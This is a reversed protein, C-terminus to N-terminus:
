QRRMDLQGLYSILQYVSDYNGIVAEWHEAGRDYDSVISEFKAPDIAQMLYNILDKQEYTVGANTALQLRNKWEQAFDVWRSFDGRQKFNEFTRKALHQKRWEDDSQGNAIDMTIDKVVHPHNQMGLDEKWLKHQRVHAQMDASMRSFMFLMIKTRKQPLELIRATEKEIKKELAKNALKTTNNHTQILMLNRALFRTKRTKIRTKMATREVRSTMANMKLRMADLRAKQTTTLKLADGEDKIPMISSQLKDVYQALRQQDDPVQGTRLEQGIDLEETDAYDAVRLNWLMCQNIPGGHKLFPVNHDLNSKESTPTSRFFKRGSRGRGRGQNRERADRQRHETSAPPASSM